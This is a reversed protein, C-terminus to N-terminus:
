PPGGKAYKQLEEDTFMWNRGSLTGRILGAKQLDRFKKVSMNLEAAAQMQNFVLRRRAAELTAVREALAHITAQLDM